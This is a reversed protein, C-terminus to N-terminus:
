TIRNKKPLRNNIMNRIGRWRAASDKRCLCDIAYGSTGSGNAQQILYDFVRVICQATGIEMDVRITM